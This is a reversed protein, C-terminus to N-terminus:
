PIDGRKIGPPKGTTPDILFELSGMPVRTSSRKILVGDKYLELTLTDGSYDQKQVSASVVRDNWLIKYIQVGTGSVPHMLETNGVEGIYTGPYEICVWVGEAPVVTPVPTSTPQDTVIPVEVPPLTNKSDLLHLPGLIAVGLVVLVVIVIAAIWIPSSSGKHTEPGSPLSAAPASPVSPAIKPTPKQPPLVIPEDAAASKSILIGPSSIVETKSIEPEAPITSALDTVPPFVSDPTEAVPITDQVLLAPVAPPSSVISRAADAWIKQAESIVPTENNEATVGVLVEEPEDDPMKDPIVDPVKDPVITPVEEHVDAPFIDATGPRYNEKRITDTDTLDATIYSPNEPIAPIGGVIEEEPTTPDPSETLAGTVEPTNLFEGAGSIEAGPIGTEELDPRPHQVSSFLAVPEVYEPPVPEDIGALIREGAPSQPIAPSPEVRKAEILLASHDINAPFLVDDPSHLIIPSPAPAARTPYEGAEPRRPSFTEIRYTASMQPQIVKVPDYPLTGASLADNRARSAQDDLTAAWQSCEKGRSQGKQRTFVFDVPVPAGTGTQDMHSLTIIPDGKVDTGDFVTIITELPITHLQFPTVSNDILILRRSTLMLDLSVGDIRIGHTSLILSEDSSLYPDDM